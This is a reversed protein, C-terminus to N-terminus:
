PILPGHSSSAGSGPLPPARCGGRLCGADSSERRSGVRAATANWNPAGWTDKTSHCSPPMLPPRPNPCDDVTSPATQIYGWRGSTPKVQRMVVAELWTLVLAKANIICCHPANNQVVFTWAAGQDYHRRFYDYPRQTGSVADSGGALLLQPIAAAEVSLNITDLGLPDFQGAGAAIVAAVRESAFAPFRAVLTGPGSFGLMILKASALEPHKSAAAFQQLATFLARGLGKAPDANIDEYSKARCHFALLLALDNRQALAQVDPDGYYRHMDRGRDFVVWVGKVPRAPDLLTLEYGCAGSIDEDAQPAVSTQLVIGLAAEARQALVLLAVIALARPFPM